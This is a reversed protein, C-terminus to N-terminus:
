RVPHMERYEDVGGGTITYPVGAPNWLMLRPRSLAPDIRRLLDVEEGHWSPRLTRLPLAHEYRTISDGEHLLVLLLGPPGPAHVAGRLRVFHEAASTGDSSWLLKLREQTSLDLAESTTLELVPAPERELLFLRDDGRAIIRYGPSALELFRKDVIRLDHTGVPMQGAEPLPFEVGQERAAYPLALGLQHYVWVVLPREPRAAQKEAITRLWAHPVSQEPWLTTHDLNATFVTRLPLALLPVALLYARNWRISIHEASFAILLIALPVLHLATRDEPYNVKLLHAFLVRLLLDGAIVAAPLWALHDRGRFVTHILMSGILLCTVVPIWWGSGFVLEVLPLITVELLGETSGHYLLGRRRLEWALLTAIGVPVSVLSFLLVQRRIHPQPGLHWRQALRLGILLLVPLSAPLLTLVSAYGVALALLVQALHIARQSTWWRMLGDLALLWCAMAAGYGRFLSFHDLLFPCTLLAIATAWRIFPRQIARTIRWGGWAYLGFALVSLIRSGFLHLGFLRSSLIGSASNLFHNNADWLAHYPLFRGTDVYWYLSAAEDHVWPVLAARLVVYTGVVLVLGLYPLLDGRHHQAYAGPAPM